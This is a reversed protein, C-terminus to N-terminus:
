SHFLIGNRKRNMNSTKLIVTLNNLVYIILLNNAGLKKIFLCTSIEKPCLVLSFFSLPLLPTVFLSLKSTEANGLKVMEM